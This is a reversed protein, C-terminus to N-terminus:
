PVPFVAYKLNSITNWRLNHLVNHKTTILHKLPAKLFKKSRFDLAYCVFEHSFIVEYSLTVQKPDHYKKFIIFRQLMPIYSFSKIVTERLKCCDSISKLMKSLSQQCVVIDTQRCFHRNSGSAKRDYSHLLNM